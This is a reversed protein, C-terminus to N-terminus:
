RDFYHVTVLRAEKEDEDYSWVVNVSTGDPLSQEVEISPHPRDAPRESRLTASPLGEILQWLMVHREQMRKRAHHSIYLRDAEVASEIRQRLTM